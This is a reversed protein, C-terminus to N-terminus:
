KLSGLINDVVIQVFRTSGDKVSSPIHIVSEKKFNNNVRLTRKNGDRSVVLTSKETLYIKTVYDNVVECSVTVNTPQGKVHVCIEVDIM